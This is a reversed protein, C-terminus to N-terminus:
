REVARALADKPVFKDGKEIAPFVITFVDRGGPGQFGLPRQQVSDGKFRIEGIGQELWKFPPERWDSFPLGRLTLLRSLFKSQIEASQGEYWSRIQDVGDVSYCRFRWPPPPGVM